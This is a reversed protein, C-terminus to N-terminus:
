FLIEVELSSDAAAEEIRRRLDETYDEEDALVNQFHKRITPPYSRFLAQLRGKVAPYLNTRDVLVRRAGAEELSRIVNEIAEDSDSFYPVVPGFFAWVDIGAEKLTKLAELRASAPSAGPELIHSVEDNASTITFGVSCQPFSKLLDIDRLVLASKTLISLEMDPRFLLAELCRRTIRYKKELPQYADTVSAMMLKGAPARRLQGRLLEPANIKADVFAGWPETHGTFRKMFGAYCYVCNHSCGSYPNVVYDVGEIGSKNLVSRATKEGVVLSTKM